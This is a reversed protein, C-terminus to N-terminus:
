SSVDLNPVDVMPLGSASLFRNFRSFNHPVAKLFAEFDANEILEEVSSESLARLPVSPLSLTEALEVTRVDHTVWVAPVGSLLSAMNVHFRTGVTRSVFEQNFDIWPEFHRFLRYRSTMFSYLKRARDQDGTSVFDLMAPPEQVSGKRVSDVYFQHVSKNEPEVLFYGRDVAQRVLTQDEIRNYNTVNVAISRNSSPADLNKRMQEFASPKSFYSPCGTVFVQGEVPGTVSEILERTYPGRVSVATAKDIINRLCQQGEPPIADPGIAAGEKAQSGLGFLIIPKDYGELARSFYEYRKRMTPSFDGVRFFNAMTIILHSCNDSVFERFKGSPTVRRWSTELTSVTNGFMNKPANGRIINGSNEPM